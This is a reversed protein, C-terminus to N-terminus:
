FEMTVYIVTPDDDDDDLLTKLSFANLSWQLCFKRVVYPDSLSNQKSTIFAHAIYPLIINDCPLSVTNKYVIYTYFHFLANNRKSKADLKSLHENQPPPIYINTM